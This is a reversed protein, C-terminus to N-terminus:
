SDTLRAGTLVDYTGPAFRIADPGDDSPLYELDEPVFEAMVVPRWRRRLLHRWLFRTEPVRRLVQVKWILPVKRTVVGSVM